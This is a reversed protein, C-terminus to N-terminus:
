RSRLRCEISALMNEATRNGPNLELVVRLRDAAEVRLQEQLCWRALMLQEDPDKPPVRALKYEYVEDITAFVQEVEKRRYRLVGAKLLISYGEDDVTVPGRLIRGDKLVLISHPVTKPVPSKQSLPPAQALCIAVLGSALLGCAALCLSLPRNKTPM